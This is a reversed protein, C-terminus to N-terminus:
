LQRPLKTLVNLAVILITLVLLKMLDNDNDKELHTKIHIHDLLSKNNFVVAATKLPRMFRLCGEWQVKDSSWTLDIFGINRHMISKGHEM